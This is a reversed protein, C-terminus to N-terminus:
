TNHTIPPRITDWFRCDDEKYNEILANGGESQGRFALTVFENKRASSGSRSGGMVPWESEPIGAHGLSSFAAWYRQMDARVQEDDDSMNCVIRSYDLVNPGRNSDWIFPIDSGHSAWEKTVQTRQTGCVELLECADCGSYTHHQFSFSRVEIAADVQHDDHTAATTTTTRRNALLNALKLTPCIVKQDADAQIIAAQVSGFFRRLPYQSSVRSSVSSGWITLLAQKYDRPSTHNPYLPVTGYFSATGDKSTSGLILQKSNVAGFEFSRLLDSENRAFSVGGEDYFYASFYPALSLNTMYQSPWQILSANRERLDQTNSANNQLLVEGYISRGVSPSLPGWMGICPGSHM